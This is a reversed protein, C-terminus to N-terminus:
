DRIGPCSRIYKQANKSERLIMGNTPFHPAVCESPSPFNGNENAPIHIDSSIHFESSSVPEM